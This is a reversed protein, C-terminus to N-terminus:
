APSGREVTRRLQAAVGQLRAAEARVAHPGLHEELDRALETGHQLGFTGLVGALKHAEERGAEVLGPQAPEQSLEHAAREITAVRADVLPRNHQWVGALSARM